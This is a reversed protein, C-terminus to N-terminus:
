RNRHILLLSPFPLLSCFSVTSYSGEGLVEGFKFDSATKRMILMSSDEQKESVGPIIKVAPKDSLNSSAARPVLPREEVELHTGKMNLSSPLRDSCEDTSSTDPDLDEIATHSRNTDIPYSNGFTFSDLLGTTSNNRSSSIIGNGNSNPYINSSTAGSTGDSVQRMMPAANFYNPSINGNNNNNNNNHIQGTTTFYNMSQVATSGESDYPISSVIPPKNKNALPGRIPSRIPVAQVSNTSRVSSQRSVISSSSSTSSPPYEITSINTSLPPPLVIPSPTPPLSM